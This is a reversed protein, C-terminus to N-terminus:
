SRVPHAGATARRDDEGQTAIRRDSELASAVDTPYSRRALLLLLGGAVVPVLMILFTDQLARTQVLSVAAHRLGVGVGIGSSRAGFAVSVFGFTLPAFAELSQRLLTRVGEARGWMRAPVVDLRAADLGPNPAAVLAGAAIFLPLAVYLASSWLAPALLVAAGVFGITGISLRSELRGRSVLRDGVRGALVLGGLIGAGIVVVLLSATGQGLGYQGRVFIVAFTSLGSFFFYGISSAVILVVNTRVRLVYRIAQWLTLETPETELVITEDPEVDRARVMEAAAADVAVRRATRKQGTLPGETAAPVEDAGRPIRSQGGTAPEPLWRQLAWILAVSPVALVIFAVRWGAWSSVLGSLLVGVGTGLVEGTLIYGWTKGRERPPFLDGTLSAVAPGATAAVAGLAVRAALLTAYSPALGSAVQAVAWLGIGAELLRIRNFRDAMSGVPVTAVAGVLSSVTVMLGVQANGIHLGHELQLALAAVTGKDASDLGLVCALLIIVRRRAPGGLQDTLRAASHELLEEARQGFRRLATTPEM